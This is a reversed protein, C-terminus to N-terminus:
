FAYEARYKSSEFLNFQKDDMMHFNESTLRAHFSLINIESIMELKIGLKKAKTIVKNSCLVKTTFLISQGFNIQSLSYEMSKIAAEINRTDFCVLTVEELSLPILNTNNLKM